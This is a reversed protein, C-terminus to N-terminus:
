TATARPTSCVATVRSARSDRDQLVWHVLLPLLHLSAGRLGFVRCIRNVAICATNSTM